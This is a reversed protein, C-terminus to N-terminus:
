MRMYVSVNQAQDMDGLEMTVAGTAELADANNPELQLSRDCFQKALDYNCEIVLQQVKALLDAVTYSSASADGGNIHESTITM